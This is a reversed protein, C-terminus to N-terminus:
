RVESVHVEEDRLFTVRVDECTITLADEIGAVDFTYDTKGDAERAGIDIVETSTWPSTGADAFTFKTIGEFALEHWSMIRRDAKERAGGAKTVVRMTLVTRHLPVYLRIDELKGAWFESLAEEWESM